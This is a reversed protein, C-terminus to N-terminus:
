GAEIGATRLAEPAPMRRGEFEAEGLGALVRAIYASPMLDGSAGVSGYRPVVPTVGRNLMAALADLLVNRVASTGTSFTAARLLMAARVVDRPLPAGTACSLHRVLNAQMTEMQEPGVAIGINGGVGTNVGYIREGRAIREELHSRGHAIRTRAGGAIRVEANERSVRVVDEICLPGTGLVAAQPIM